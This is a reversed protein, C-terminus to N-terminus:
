YVGYVCYEPCSSENTGTKPGDDCDEYESQVIGDGCRAGLKCNPGCTGYAGNNVGDDCEEGNMSDLVADGCRPPYYGCGLGCGGYSGDNVGDDCAEGLWSQVIGDGCVPKKCKSTCNDDDSLNGDDCEEGDEIVGNGCGALQCNERCTSGPKGNNAGDDCAEPPEIVGNGCNNSAYKCDSTCGEGGDCEEVGEVIGNGCFSALRCNVCGKSKAVDDNVHGEIDCEENGRVKGDGCIADCSSEGMNLFGVLTLEFNSQTTHREAQFFNIPYIGGEYLDFNKDYMLNTEPNREASLEFRGNKAEHCGAIQIARKGNVYVFVDDDGKFNLTAKEGTYKFYTQIQTTFHFNHGSTNYKGYSLEALPANDLPYYNNNKYTYTGTKPDTLNLTLHNKISKNIGPIDRYWTSFSKETIATGNRTQTNNNRTFKSLDLVPLGDPGLTDTVFGDPEDISNGKEFDPHGQNKEFIGRPTNYEKAEAETFCGDVKQDRARTCNTDGWGRFDRFTAALDVTKPYEHSYKTCEFGSEVKCESSCGDGSILNGDDCEEGAEWVTIGDGCIPKCSGDDNCFFISERRCKPDCGDGAMLNGDDCEEGAEVVGNGCKGKNCNKGNADCLCHDQINCSVCCESKEECTEAGELIGNGCVADNTCAQGEKDCKWGFTIFECNNCGKTVHTGEDCVEDGTIKGDGCVDKVCAEGAKDCHFGPERRCYRSCGDESETNKDDCEEDGAIIGDGCMQAICPKNLDPCAWGPEIQCKDSCGDNSVKNGDECSESGEIKGDGCVVEHCVKGECAYGSEIQCANSCGDGSQKNGDDCGEGADLNGDGCKSLEHCVSGECAYGSEVECSSSCGDGSQVNGDDCAEGTELVGNGCGETVVPPNDIVKECAQGPTVCKYGGELKCESSCGDGSVGNGDDCTEQHTIKGDGCYFNGHQCFLSCGNYEDLNNLGGNDCQEYGEDFIGDGCYHALTCHTTCAGATFHYGDVNSTGDDCDEGPDLVGNGCSELLCLEGVTPCIYGSEITHCDASCGDGSVANGDDCAEGADISKNGCLSAPEENRKCSEGVVPCTYGEEINCISSCGDGDVKNADDCVEGADLVGNGCLTIDVQTKTCGGGSASCTYGYETLCASSCGDGDILNGDDCTEYLEVVRNGCGGSVGTDDSCGVVCCLVAMLWLKKRM